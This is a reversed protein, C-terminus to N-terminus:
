QIVGETKYQDYMIDLANFMLTIAMEPVPVNEHEAMFNLKELKELPVHVTLSAGTVERGKENMAM